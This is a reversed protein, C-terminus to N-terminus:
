GDIKVGLAQLREVILIRLATYTAIAMGNPVIVDGGGFGSSGADSHDISCGIGIPTEADATEYKDKFTGDRAKKLQELTYNAQALATALMGVEEAEDITM